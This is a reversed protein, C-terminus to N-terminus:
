LGQNLRGMGLRRWYAWIRRVTSDPFIREAEVSKRPVLFDDVKVGLIRSLVFLNDVSPLNHRNRWKNIAQVSIGMMAAIKKDPIGSEDIIQAIRKCSAEMDLSSIDLRKRKM